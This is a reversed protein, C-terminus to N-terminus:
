SDKQSSETTLGGGDSILLEERIQDQDGPDIRRVPFQEMIRESGPLATNSPNGGGGRGM